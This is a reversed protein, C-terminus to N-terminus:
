WGAVIVRDDKIRKLRTLLEYVSWEELFSNIDTIKRDVIKNAAHIDTKIRKKPTLHRNLM